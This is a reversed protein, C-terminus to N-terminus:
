ADPIARDADLGWFAAIRRTSSIGVDLMYPGVAGCADPGSIDLPTGHGMDSVTIDEIVDRGDRDEWIRRIYGDATETRTPEADLGHVGRWQAVIAQANSPCVTTDASGHWVSLTPWPGAHASAARLSAVLRTEDPVGHGRMRDFAEVMSTASGFPLGAVVAGGAFVEPYLALMACTMAGGASLGTIFIRGPDIANQRVVTEIMQRISFVEGAGASTDAPSFWNFCMNLNNRRKQEPYLLAFGHQEALASWGAGDDYQRASQNCGHLVVVLPMATSIRAPIYTHALLDGPNSGFNVLDTLRDDGAPQPWSWSESRIAALRGITDSLRRM